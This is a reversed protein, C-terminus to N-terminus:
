VADVPSATGAVGARLVLWPRPLSSIFYGPAEARKMEKSTQMLLKPEKVLSLAPRVRSPLFRTEAAEVSGQCHEAM